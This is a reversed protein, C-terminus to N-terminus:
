ITLPASLNGQIQNGTGTPGDIKIGFDGNGSILNGAGPASGGIMNNPAGVLLLGGFNPNNNLIAGSGIANTGIFNGQVLNGTATDGYIIVGANGNGSIVNRAGTSTGGILNGATGIGIGGGSNGISTTGSADTGIRNGQIINHDSGNGGIGIGSAVNGSILNGAGPVSGGILNNASPAGGTFLNVGLFGNSIAATGSANTGIYNGQITQNSSSNSHIGEHINGSIVNGAGPATGGVFNSNASVFVVGMDNGIAANGAANTGIYNGIVLNNPVNGDQGYILVGFRTNGSIVNRAQPTTGGIVNNSAFKTIVVGDLVNPRADSGTPDTGIYCGTVQNGVAAPGSIFIGSNNFRNIVLGNIRNNGSYIHFGGGEPASFGMAGGNVIVEPGSTNTDGTFATQTAGDITTGNDTLPPLASLPQIFVVTGLFGPDTPPINFAVTDPGPKVNACIMAQRLTGAGSDATNTVV